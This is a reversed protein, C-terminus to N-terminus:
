AQATSQLWFLILLHSYEEVGELAEELKPELIIDSVVREWGERRM